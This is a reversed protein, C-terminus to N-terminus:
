EAEEVSYADPFRSSMAQRVNKVWAVADDFQTDDWAATDLHDILEAVREGWSREVDNQQTQPSQDEVSQLIAEGLVLREEPPLQMAFTYVADRLSMNTMTTM